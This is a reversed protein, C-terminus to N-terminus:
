VTNQDPFRGDAIQRDSMNITLLPKESTTQDNVIKIVPEVNPDSADHIVLHNEGPLGQIELVKNGANVKVIDEASKEVTSLDVTYGYNELGNYVMFLEKKVAQNGVHHDVAVRKSLAEVAITGPQAIKNPNNM